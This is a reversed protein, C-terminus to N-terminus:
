KCKDRKKKKAKCPDPRSAAKAHHATKRTHAGLQCLTTQKGGRGARRRQLVMYGLMQLSSFDKVQFATDLQKPKVSDTPSLAAFAVPLIARPCRACEQCM